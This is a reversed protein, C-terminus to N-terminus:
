PWAGEKVQKERRWLLDELAAVRRAWKREQNQAGHLHARIAEPAAFRAFGPWWYWGTGALDPKPTDSSM